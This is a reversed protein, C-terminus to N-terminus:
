AKILADLVFSYSGQILRRRSKDYRGTPPRARIDDGELALSPAAPVFGTPRVLSPPDRHLIPAWKQIVHTFPDILLWNIPSTHLKFRYCTEWELLGRSRRHGNLVVRHGFLSVTLRLPQVCLSFFLIQQRDQRRLLIPQTHSVRPHRRLPSSHM